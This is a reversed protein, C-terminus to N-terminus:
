DSQMWAPLHLAGRRLGCHLAMSQAPFLVQFRQEKDIGPYKVPETVASSWHM